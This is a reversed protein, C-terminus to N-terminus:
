FLDEEDDSVAPKTGVGVGALEPTATGNVHQPVPETSGVAIADESANPKSEFESLDLKKEKQWKTYSGIPVYLYGREDIQLLEVNYKAKFASRDKNKFYEDKHAKSAVQGIPTLPSPTVGAAVETQSKARPEVNSRPAPESTQKPKQQQRTEKNDLNKADDDEDAQIGLIGCYAYRRIYTLASGLQQMNSYKDIAIESKLFQGSEHMLITTVLNGNQIGTVVQSVALGTKTLVSRVATIVDALDAYKYSYSPKGDKPYVTVTKTKPIDPFEGQAVSLAKAIENIQESHIATM